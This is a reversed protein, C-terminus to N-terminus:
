EQSKESWGRTRPAETASVALEKIRDEFGPERRESEEIIQCLANFLAYHERKLAIFHQDENPELTKESVSYM